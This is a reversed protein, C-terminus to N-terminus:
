ESSFKAEYQYYLCNNLPQKDNKKYVPVINGKRWDSPYIGNALCDNFILELPSCLSDGCIKLM